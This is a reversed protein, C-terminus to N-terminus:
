AQTVPKPETEPLRERGSIAAIPVLQRFRALAAPRDALVAAAKRSGTRRPHEEILARLEAADEAPVERAAVSDANLPRWAWSWRWARAV